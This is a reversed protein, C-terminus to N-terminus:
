KKQIVERLKTFNELYTATVNIVKGDCLTLTNGVIRDICDMRIIVSRNLRFFPPSPLKQQLDNLTELTLISDKEQKINVYGGQAEVYQISNFAIRVLDRGDKVFLSNEENTLSPPVANQSRIQLRDRFRNVARLFKEPRVPKLLFDIVNYDYSELAFHPNATVVIVNVRNREMSSLWDLGNVRPLNIDLFILDPYMRDVLAQAEFVNGAMGVLSLFPVSAVHEIMAEQALPEDEVILCKILSDSM